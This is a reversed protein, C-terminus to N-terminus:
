VRDMENLATLLRDVEQATNYHLLGIRLTGEPDIEMAQTFPVAYHNGSWTFIGQEALNKAAQETTKEPHVLSITPVREHMRNTQTIGLIKFRTNAIGEILRSLLQKEHSEIAAFSAEIRKRLPVSEPLGSLSAIYEIAAKTGALGELNPTGSMMSWPLNEDCPRLKESPLAELYERKGWLMGVHPGFFKYASAVIFDCGLAEIDILGHPAYHVADVFVKAGVQHAAESMTAVPHITGTANSALGVAVLKTKSSLLQRYASQDLTSDDKNLAITHVVVGKSEAARVWPTFNADHESQSLIIEDGSEWESALGRSLKLTLSTMNPGFVIEHPDSAGFFAAGAQQVEEMLADSELSTAFFGGGNANTHLMYHSVADAVTQPVQAGAPGDLFVVQREGLKRTLGPFQSRIEEEPPLTHM